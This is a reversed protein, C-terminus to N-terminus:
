PPLRVGLPLPGRCCSAPPVEHERGLPCAPLQRTAAAPGSRCQHPLAALHRDVGNHLWVPHGCVVGVERYHARLETAVRSHPDLGWAHPADWRVVWTPAQRADRLTNTLLVMRPDLTRVPLSWSYPYPTALRSADLVNAHSFPVVASDGPRSSRALWRGVLYPRSHHAHQRAAAVPAYVLTIMVSLLVARRTWQGAATTTRAATGAALALMPIPGILYHPWYSGGLLVGALEVAGAVTVAWVAPSRSILARRHGVVLQVSLLLMGTAAALWVLELLGAAPAQWSGDTIVDGADARFGFMAYTLARADGRDAAWTVAALWPGAAGVLFTILLVLLRRSPLRQLALSTAVLVVAFAFGDVFNQKVLPATGACGGALAGLCATTLVSGPRSLGHLIAGVSVMVLAASIIEGNLQYTGLLPSAALACATWAAWGPRGRVATVAWASAAVLATASAASALRVGYPGLRQATEFVMMLGPPRDVFQHGYLYPGTAHWGRAVMSFGGEDSTLERSLFLLHVALTTLCALTV